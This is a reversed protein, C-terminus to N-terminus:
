SEAFGRGLTRIKDGRHFKGIGCEYYHHIRNTLNVYSDSFTITFVIRPDLTFSVIGSSSHDSKISETESPM